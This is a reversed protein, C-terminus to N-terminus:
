FLANKAIKKLFNEPTRPAGGRPGGVLGALVKFGGGRFKKRRVGSGALAMPQSNKKTNVFDALTLNQVRIHM